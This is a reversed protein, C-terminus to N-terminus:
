AARYLGPAFIRGRDNDLGAASMVNGLGGWRDYLIGRTVGAAEVERLTPNRRLKKACRQITKMIEEKNM